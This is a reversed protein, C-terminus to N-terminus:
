IGEKQKIYEIYELHKEFTDLLIGIDKRKYMMKEQDYSM